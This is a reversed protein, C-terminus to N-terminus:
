QLWDHATKGQLAGFRFKRERDRVIVFDIWVNCLGCVGDFFIVPEGPSASPLPAPQGGTASNGSPVALGSMSTTPEVPMMAVRYGPRRRGTLVVQCPSM